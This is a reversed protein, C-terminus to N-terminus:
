RIFLLTAILGCSSGNRLTLEGGAADMIRSAIALGLGTGGTHRNRSTELRVFPELVQGIDSEPIGPGKDTVTIRCGTADETVEVLAEAGYSIANGVVNDLARRIAGADGQVYAPAGMSLVAHGGRRVADQVCATSVAVLDVIEVATSSAEGRAFALLDNTMSEMRAIDDAMRARERPPAAEARLRLSTLPTRLDHAIAAMMETRQDIQRALRAQMGNFAAAATRVENPGCVRLPPSRPDRGVRESAEALQEMPRTLRRASVWAIPAMLGIGVAFAAVVRRPWSWFPAAPAVVIWRGSPGSIAAQFAPFPVSTLLSGLSSAEYRRGPGRRGDTGVHITTMSVVQPPRGRYQGASGSILRVRVERGPLLAALAGAILRAPTDDQSAFPAAGIETRALGAAMAADDALYAAAVQRASMAGPAPSPFALLLALGVLQAILVSGLVLLAVNWRLSFWRM